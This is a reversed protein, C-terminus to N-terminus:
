KDDALHIDVLRRKTASTREGAVKPLTVVLIGDALKASIQDPDVDPARGDAVTGTGLPIQSDFTGIEKLRGSRVITDLLEGDIQPRYVVGAVNLVSTEVNYQINLDQGRAGPLSVHAIFNTATNFVDTRPTFEANGKGSGTTHNPKCLLDNLIEHMDFSLKTSLDRTTDNSDAKATNATPCGSPKDWGRGSPSKWNPYTRGRGIKANCSSFGRSYAPFGRMDSGRGCRGHRHSYHRRQKDCHGTRNQTSREWSAAGKDREEGIEEDDTDNEQLDLRFFREKHQSKTPTHQYRNEGTGKSDLTQPCAASGQSTYPPPHGLPPWTAGIYELLGWAPSPPQNRYYVDAMKCSNRTTDRTSLSLFFPPSHSLGFNTPPSTLISIDLRYSSIPPISTFPLISDEKKRNNWYKYRDINRLCHSASKQAFGTDCNERGQCKAIPASCLDSDRSSQAEM